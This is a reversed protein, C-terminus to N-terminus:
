QRLIATGYAIVEVGAGSSLDNQGIVSVELRVGVVGDFGAQMAKTKMRVIAERRGRELLSDYVTLNKGFLSLINAMVQKFRDQAIVVSGVVLQGANQSPLEHKRESSLMIHECAKEQVNLRQLHKNENYRGFGYGIAILILALGIQFVVGLNQSLLEILTNM